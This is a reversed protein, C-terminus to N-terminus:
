TREHRECGWLSLLLIGTCYYVHWRETHRKWKSKRVEEKAGVRECVIGQGVQLLLPPSAISSNQMRFNCGDAMCLLLWDFVTTCAPFHFGCQSSAFDRTIFKLVNLMVQFARLAAWTELRRLSNNATTNRSYSWHLAVSQFAQEFVTYQVKISQLIM